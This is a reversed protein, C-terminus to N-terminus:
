SPFVSIAADLKGPLLGVTLFGGALFTGQLRLSAHGVPVLELPAFLPAPWVRQATNTPQLIEHEFANVVCFLQLSVLFYDWLRM